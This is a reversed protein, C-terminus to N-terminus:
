AASGPAPPHALDIPTNEHRTLRQDIGQVLNTLRQMDRRYVTIHDDLKIELARQGTQLDNIAVTAENLVAVTQELDRQTKAMDSQLQRQGARLLILHEQMPQITAEIHNLREDIREFRQDVLEFRENIRQESAYVAANIEERMVGRLNGVEERMITRILNAEENTLKLDGWIYKAICQTYL